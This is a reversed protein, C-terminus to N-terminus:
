FETKGTFKFSGLHVAPAKICGVSSWWSEVLESEKSVAVASSFARLMSDTFRLNKIGGVIEGREILFTGDRTMGTLVANPPDIFGNIYHFRTILIGKRIKDIMKARPTKGPSIVINLPLPGASADDPTM